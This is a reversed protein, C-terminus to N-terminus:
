GIVKAKKIRVFKNTKEPVTAKRFDVNVVEGHKKGLYEEAYSKRVPLGEIERWAVYLDQLFMKIMKRIAAKHRHDVYGDKWKVTRTKMGNYEKKKRDEKYLWEETERDSNELRTKYEYYYGSYPVSKCQLFCSGLVGCLKARLFQNFSCKKGKIKKDKGPALGAFSVLNSAMPAKHIDFQTIIVGAMVPGCGKVNKLFYIWLPHEQVSKTIEKEMMEEFMFIEDRRNQLALLMYEDREPTGKKFRGDKKKGLRGDIATREAQYDYYARVNIDISRLQEQTITKM